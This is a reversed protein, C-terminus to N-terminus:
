LAAGLPRAEIRLAAHPDRESWVHRKGVLIVRGEDNALVECKEGHVEIQQGSFTVFRECETPGCIRLYIPASDPVSAADALVLQPGKRGFVLAQVQHPFLTELERFCKRAAALEGDEPLPRPIGARHFLLLCALVCCAAVLAMSWAFLPIRKRMPAVDPTTSSKSERFIAGTIKRPFDQWYDPPREPVSASRLLNDLESDKM